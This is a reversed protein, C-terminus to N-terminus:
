VVAGASGQARVGLMKRRLSCERPAKGLRVNKAGCASSRASVVSTSRCPAMLVVTTFAFATRGHTSLIMRSAFAPPLSLILWALAQTYSASITLERNSTLIGLGLGKNQREHIGHTEKRGGM